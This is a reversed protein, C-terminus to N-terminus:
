YDDKQELLKIIDESDKMAEDVTMTVNNFINQQINFTINKPSRLPQQEPYMEIYKQLIKELLAANFYDNNVYCEYIKIQLLEIRQQTLFKKNLPASAAFIFEANVIDKYATDRSIGYAAILFNAVQERKYKRERIKEAATNWRKYLEEQKPSLSIGEDNGDGGAEVFALIADRNDDSYRKTLAQVNLLNVPKM